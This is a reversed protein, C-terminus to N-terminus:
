WVCDDGHGGNRRKVENHGDQEDNGRASADGVDADVEVTRWAGEVVAVEANRTRGVGDRFGCIGELARAAQEVGEGISLAGFADNAARTAKHRGIRAAEFTGGIGVGSAKIRRRAFCARTARGNSIRRTARLTDATVGALKQVDLGLMGNATGTEDTREVGVAISQRTVCTRRTCRGRRVREHGFPRESPTGCTGCAGKGLKLRGGTKEVGGARGVPNAKARAARKAHEIRLISHGHAAFARIAGDGERISRAARGYGSRDRGTRSAM